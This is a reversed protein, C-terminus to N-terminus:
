LHTPFSDVVGAILADLGPRTYQEELKPILADLESPSSPRIAKPRDIPFCSYYDGFKYGNGVVKKSLEIWANPVGLSDAVILGHLSSSFVFDCGAIANVVDMPPWLPNIVISGQVEDEFDSAIPLDWDVYHPILGVRCSDGPKVDLHRTLLAPDGVGGISGCRQSSVFGRTSSIHLGAGTASGESIFGTGWTTPSQHQSGVVLDLISGLAVLECAENDAWTVDRGSVLSVLMPSLEDGFNGM